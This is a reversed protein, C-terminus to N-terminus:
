AAGVCSLSPGGPCLPQTGVASGELRPRRRVRHPKGMALLCSKWWTGPAPVVEFCRFHTNPQVAAWRLPAKMARRHLYRRSHPTLSDSSAPSPGGRWSQLSHASRQWCWGLEPCASASQVMGLQAPFPFFEFELKASFNWSCLKSQSLISVFGASDAGCFVGFCFLKNSTLRCTQILRWNRSKKQLYSALIKGGNNGCFPKREILHCLDKSM